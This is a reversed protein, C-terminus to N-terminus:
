CRGSRYTAYTYGGLAFFAAYGLDLLGAFGIVVNLGVALLAYIGAITFANVWANMSQLEGFPPIRSILPLAGGIVIVAVLVGLSRHQAFYANSRARLLAFRSLLASM